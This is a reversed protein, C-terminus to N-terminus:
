GHVHQAMVTRFWVEFVLLTWLRDLYAAKRTRRYLGFLTEVYGRNFYGHRLADGGLLQDQLYAELGDRFWHELPVAFGWKGRSLIETPVIGDLARKFIYKTAGERLKYRAPIGAVFEVLSHDLLPVRSEVSHAMSMRDVKTLIDGPLYTKLDLYQLRSPFALPEGRALHPAFIHHGNRDLERVMEASLLTKLDRQPFHSISDLYRGMRPLSIHFLYNKGFAGEPMLASLRRILPAAGLRSIVDFRRRRYDTVYRDYGAFIEDGGDGSLVVKLHQGALKSVFYTPIASPDAFPEDFYEVLRAVLDVSEPQVILEHHETGFRQAVVRAYPLENYEGQAFGISFTKVPHGLESAMLAVVASSDIGGSLFAGVPVDSVLHSRVAEALRRQLERALEDESGWRRTEEFFPAPDWYSRVDVAEHPRAELWHGPPLKSVGRLISLPDPVYGFQLYALLGEHSVERRLGPFHYLSKMESAFVLGRPTEAYYLPKIGLRDRAVFLTRANRDWLAFAFMGRLRQVCERGFEEYLHVIVETDSTTYFKHGREELDRALERYNYIEGNFVVHLSGDENRVPQHGTQLDIISLRRMGLGVPGDLLYGEDDPGRHRIADGMARLPNGSLPKGPDSLCFGFIGCM